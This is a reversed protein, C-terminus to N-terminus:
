FRGLQFIIGALMINAGQFDSHATPMSYQTINLSATTSGSISKAGAAVGGGLGQVVLAVIDQTTFGTLITITPCLQTSM